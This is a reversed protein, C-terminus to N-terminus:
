MPLNPFGLTITTMNNRRSTVGVTGKMSEALPQLKRIQSEIANIDCSGSDKVQVLIVNGYFKATLRICSDKAFYTVASLLGSLVSAMWQPDINLQLHGPIENVFVNKSGSANDRYSTILHGVVERLVRSERISEPPVSHLM